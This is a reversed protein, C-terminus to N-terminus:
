KALHASNKQLEVDVQLLQALARDLALPARRERWSAGGGGRQADAHSQSIMDRMRPRLESLERCTVVVDSQKRNM